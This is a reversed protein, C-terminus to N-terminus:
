GAFTQYLLFVNLAIIAVAIAGAVVTTARRNVLGGMVERRSTLIILPVLAFPIGFSLVVQSIVLSRTPDLGLALVVLAPTMTILRRLVLPITRNIFGSMIVQGAYTGVSSSAFGSALLALAFALAAGPGILQDFGHYAGELTDVDGLSSGHFLSAAIVLMLMNVVGAVSMAILVDIRMWRFLRKREADTEVQIRDQTLASHLYIVHPMVTAGLIAAALLVSDGGAFGPVFGSIVGSAEPGVKLTDYLFGLLIVGLMGGIVLEFRRYGKSQLALIAFAVVGTMLGATFLPVGFLLNLAIAAGIFEALDTAMAILEAQIWLGVSAKRPLRERCLEPLNKGTALGLKASLTQILMGMLNAALIVWLLTYGYSAGGDINTAFNGPDVYAIAAVFAPGLLPLIGKLGRRSRIRELESPEPLAVAGATETVPPPPPPPTM